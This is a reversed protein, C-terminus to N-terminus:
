SLTMVSPIVSPIRHPHLTNPHDTSLTNKQLRSIRSNLLSIGSEVVYIVIPIYEPAAMLISASVYSPSVQIFSSTLWSSTQRSENGEKPDGRTM